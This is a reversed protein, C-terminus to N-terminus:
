SPDFEMHNFFNKFNPPSSNQVMTMYVILRDPYRCLWVQDLSCAVTISEKIKLAVIEM